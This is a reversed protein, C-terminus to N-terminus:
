AELGLDGSTVDALRGVFGTESVRERELIGTIGPGVLPGEVVAEPESALVPLSVVDDQGVLEADLVMSDPLARSFVAELSEELGPGTTDVTLESIGAPGTLDDTAVETISEKNVGALGRARM